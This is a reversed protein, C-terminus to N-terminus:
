VDYLTVMSVQGDDTLRFYSMHGVM